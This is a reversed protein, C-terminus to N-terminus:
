PRCVKCPMYGANRADKKSKFKILNEPKIRHAWTCSSYHYKNSNISGWYEACIAIPVFVFLFVTTLFFARLYQKM